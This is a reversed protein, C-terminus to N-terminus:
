SNNFSMDSLQNLQDNFADKIGSLEAKGLVAYITQPTETFPICNNQEHVNNSVGSTVAVPMLYKDDRIKAQPIGVIMSCDQIWKTSSDQM